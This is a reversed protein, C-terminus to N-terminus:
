VGDEVTRNRLAPPMLGLADLPPTATRSWLINTQSHHHDTNWTCFPLIVVKFQLGKAKHITMIRMADVAEPVQVSTEHGDSRGGGCFRTCIARSRAPTTSCRM